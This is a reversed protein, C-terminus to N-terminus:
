SEVEEEEKKERVEEKSIDDEKEVKEKEEKKIIASQKDIFELAKNITAEDTSLEKLYRYTNAIINYCQIREKVDNTTESLEWLRLLLQTLGSECRQYTVPIRVEIHTKINEQAKCSLYQLDLSVVSQSVGITDAIVQQSMGRSFLSLVKDRRLEINRKSYILEPNNVNESM